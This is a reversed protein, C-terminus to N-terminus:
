RGDVEEKRKRGEDLLRVAAEVQPQRLHLERSLQQILDM